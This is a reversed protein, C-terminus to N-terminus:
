SRLYNMLLFFSFLLPSLVRGQRVGNTVNFRDSIHNVWKVQLEQQTYMSFLLRVTLPCMGRDLLKDFLKIYDVRDFAKSADLLLVHVESGSKTYREITELAMFTCMTTSSKKKFGFQLYSTELKDKQQNLIIIDLIKALGTGITLARYNDSCQKKGRTDKILPIMTGLLMEDPAIGHVVMSNFFLALIIMMRKTGHKFHNSCLGNEEKKGQKLDDIANVVDNMTITHSHYKNYPNVKCENEIRSNIEASLRNYDQTSYGVTNYM